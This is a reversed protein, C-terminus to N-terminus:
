TKSFVGLQESSFQAQDEVFQKPELLFFKEWNHEGCEQLLALRAFVQSLHQYHETWDNFNDYWNLYFSDDEARMIVVSIDKIKFQHEVAIATRGERTFNPIASNIDTM